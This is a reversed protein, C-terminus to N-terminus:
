KQTELKIEPTPSSSTDLGSVEEEEDSVQVGEGDCHGREGVLQGYKSSSTLSVSSYSLHWITLPLDMDEKVGKDMDEKVGKDM